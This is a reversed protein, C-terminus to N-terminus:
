GRRTIKHWCFAVFVVTFGICIWDATDKPPNTKLLTRGVVAGFVIDALTYLARTRRVKNQEARRNLEELEETLAVYRARSERLQADLDGMHTRFEQDERLAALQRQKINM